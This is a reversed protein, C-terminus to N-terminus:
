REVDDLYDTVKIKAGKWPSQALAGVVFEGITIAVTAAIGGATYTLPLAIVNTPLVFGLTILSRSVNGAAREGPDLARAFSMLARELSGTEGVAWWKRLERQNTAYLLRWEIGPMRGLQSIFWTPLAIYTTRRESSDLALSRQYVRGLAGSHVARYDARHQFATARRYSEFYWSELLERHEPSWTGQEIDRLFDSRLARRSLRTLEDLNGDSDAILAGLHELPLYDRALQVMDAWSRNAEWQELGIHGHRVGEGLAKWGDTLAAVEADDAGARVLYKGIESIKNGRGDVSASQDQVARGHTLFSSRFAGGQRADFMAWASRRVSEKRSRIKLIPADDDVRLERLLGATALGLVVRGDLAQADTLVLRQSLLAEFRLLGLADRLVPDEKNELRDLWQVDTFSEAQETSDLEGILVRDNTRNVRSM